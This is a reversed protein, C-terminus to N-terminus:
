PASAYVVLSELSGNFILACDSLNSVTKILFNTKSLLLCDVIANKGIEYPSDMHKFHLPSDQDTARVVKSNYCIKDPFLSLMTDLFDKEDTALFIKYIDRQEFTLSDIKKQVEKIMQEYSVRSAEKQKDTGRYHVGIMYANEYNASVFSNVEELIAPKVRVYKSVAKRTEKRLNKRYRAYRPYGKGERAIKIKSNTPSGLHIPEFYYEWWNEGQASDYYCGSRGFNFTLGDLYGLNYQCLLDFMKYLVFGMGENRCGQM